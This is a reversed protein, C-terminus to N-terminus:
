GGWFPFLVQLSGGARCRCPVGLLPVLGVRGLLSSSRLLMRRTAGDLLALGSCVFFVACVCAWMGINKVRHM